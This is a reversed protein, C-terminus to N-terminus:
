GRAWLARLKLGAVQGVRDDLPTAVIVIREVQAFTQVVDVLGAVAGEVGPISGAGAQERWVVRGKRARPLVGHICRERTTLTLDGTEPRGGLGNMNVIFTDVVDTSRSSVYEEDSAIEEDLDEWLEEGTFPTWTNNFVDANPRSYQSM